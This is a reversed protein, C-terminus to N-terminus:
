VVIMVIDQMVRCVGEEINLKKIKKSTNICLVEGKITNVIYEAHGVKIQVVGNEIPITVSILDDYTETKSPSSISCKM